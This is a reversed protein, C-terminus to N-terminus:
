DILESPKPPNPKLGKRERTERIAKEQLSPPVEEFKEFESGWLARGETASRMDASLGFSEAVPISSDVIALDEESEISKVQGRRSKITQTVEGLFEQPTRVEVKLLPELITPEAKLFAAHIARRTAPMIQAPGRHITDEHLKANTLAVKVGRVPENMMPGEQMGERFADAMYEEIERLYQIGKTENVFINQEDVALVNKAARTEWGLERLKKARDKKNQKDFIEGKDLADTVEPELPEVTFKLRNHRNPSVGEIPGGKDKVHERYVVLPESTEIDLGSEEIQHQVIQLHLEGMGSILYEGTEEDIDVVVNPDERSIRRMESILEPLDKYDKPEVAITVVPESVYQLDEFGQIEVGKDVITEGVVADEMGIVAAINGAPAKEVSVRDPGMYIGVQQIRADKKANVLHVEKGVELSGSFIRGTSVVGAQEDIQVDTVIMCLPGDVKSKVMSQGLESEIDGRWIESIREAQAQDPNPLHNVVMDLIVEDLPSEEALKEVEDNKHADIIDKFNINKKKMQAVSLAWKETASGFAVSGGEVSVKWRQALEDPAYKNLLENFKRIIKAFRKQMEDPSLKLEDILRDVKNIYLVPHVHERIAQRLVTETQVMVGEVADVVVIAGDIARLARTVDGSFDVHGPTDLLNILYEQGEYHHALSVAATQITIGREQEEEMFDTFLQEGAHEESIIGSDAVLSDTLTTKGHDIHAIIGIDRVQDHEWMLKQVDDLHKYRRM